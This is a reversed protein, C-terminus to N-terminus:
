MQVSVGLCDGHVCGFLVAVGLSSRTGQIENGPPVKNLGGGSEAARSSRGSTCHRSVLAFAFDPSGQVLREALVIHDDRLHRVFVM